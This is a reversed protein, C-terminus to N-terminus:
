RAARVRERPTRHEAFWRCCAAKTADLSLDQEADVADQIWCASPDLDTVTDHAEAAKERALTEHYVAIVEAESKGELLAWKAAALLSAAHRIPYESKWLFTQAARMEPAGEERHRYQTRRSTAYRTAARKASPEADAHAAGALTKVLDLAMPDLQTMDLSGDKQRAKNAQTNCWKERTGGGVQQGM